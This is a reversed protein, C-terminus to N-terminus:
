KTFKRRICSKKFANTSPSAKKLSLKNEREVYDKGPSVRTSITRGIRFDQITSTGAAFFCTTEKTKAKCEGSAGCEWCLSDYLLLDLTASRPGKGYSLSVRAFIRSDYLIKHFSDHRQKRLKM